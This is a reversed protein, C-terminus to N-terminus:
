TGHLDSIVLLHKKPLYVSNLVQCKGTLVISFSVAIDEYLNVFGHDVFLQTLLKHM